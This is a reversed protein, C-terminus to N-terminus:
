CLQEALRLKQWKLNLEMFEQTFFLSPSFLFVLNLLPVIPGYNMNELVTKKSKFPAEM